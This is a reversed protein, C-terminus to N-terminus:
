PDSLAFDMSSRAPPVSRGLFVFLCHRAPNHRPVNGLVESVAAHGVSADLFLAFDIAQGIRMQQCQLGAHQPHDAPTFVDAVTNENRCDADAQRRERQWGEDARRREERWAEDALRRQEDALRRQEDALRRQEDALRREERWAEDALRREEDARQRDEDSRLRDARMEVRLDRLEGLVLTLGPDFNRDGPEQTAM